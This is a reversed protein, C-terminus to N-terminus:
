AYRGAPVSRPEALALRKVWPAALDAVAKVSATTDTPGIVVLRNSLPTRRSSQDVLGARAVEDMTVTDAAFFVDAKNMTEIQYALEGSGAFNFVLRTGNAKGCAPALEQLVDRLSAAAYVITESEGGAAATAAAGKAAAAGASPHPPVIAAVLVLAAVRWAIGIRFGARRALNQM